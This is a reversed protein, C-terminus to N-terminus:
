EKKLLDLAWQPLQRPVTEDVPCQYEKKEDQNGAGNTTAYPHFKTPTLMGGYKKLEIGLQVYEAKNLEFILTVMM